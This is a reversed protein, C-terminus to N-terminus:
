TPHVKVYIYTLQMKIKGFFTQAEISFGSLTMASSAINPLADLDIEIGSFDTKIFELASLMKILIRKRISATM